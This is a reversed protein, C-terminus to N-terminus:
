RRPIRKVRKSGVVELDGAPAIRKAVRRDRVRARLLVNKPSVFHQKRQMVDMVTHEHAEHMVSEEHMEIAEWAREHQELLAIDTDQPNPNRVFRGVEEGEQRPLMETDEENEESQVGSGNAVGDDGGGDGDDASHPPLKQKQSKITHDKGADGSRRKHADRASSTSKPPTTKAPPTSKPTTKTPSTSKSAKNTASTSKPPTKTTSTSRSTKTQSPKHTSSAAKSSPSHKLWEHELLEMEEQLGIEEIAKPGEATIIAKAPKARPTTPPTLSLDDEEDVGMSEELAGTSTDIETDPGYVETTAVDDVEYAKQMTEANQDGKSQLRM